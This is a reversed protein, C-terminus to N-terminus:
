AADTKEAVIRDFFQNFSEGEKGNEMYDHYAYVRRAHVSRGMLDKWPITSLSQNMWHRWKDSHEVLETEPFCPIGATFHILKADPNPEDYLVLHNWENPFTGKNKTWGLKHLPIDCMDVFEPTLRKNDPHSCNFLMASAKEFGHPTDITMVAYRDDALDFLDSIDDALLMDADLFLAWGEYGCLWPVLFRSYTFPTLGQRTIPLSELVLPTVSIPRKKAQSMLSLSLVSFTVPQRHDFGIFIKDM